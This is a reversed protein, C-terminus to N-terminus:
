ATFRVVVIDGDQVEYDKGELHQKGAKAVAAESGYTILDEFRIVEMRIFGKEMDSHIKGAARPAKDGKRCTWVHVEKEGATFFSILGLTAYAARILRERSAETWGLEALFAKQDQPDLEAIEAEDRGCIAVMQAKEGEAISRLAAVAPNTLDHPTKINAVFLQPKQSVLNCERISAFERETLQQKRVPIGKELSQRIAECDALERQVEKDGSRARKALRDIKKQLTQLDAVILELDIAEVDRGPDITPYAHPLNPDEFCRVVHLLADVDKVHGLLKTGHGEAATSGSSLGPIDVLEFSAPITKKPRYMQVLPDIRPDPVPITALHAEQRGTEIKGLATIARFITSKGCGPLGVIGCRVGM